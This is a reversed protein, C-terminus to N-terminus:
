KFIYRIIQVIGPNTRKAYIVRQALVPNDTIVNDVGCDVMRQIRQQSNTTWAYVEKGRNHIANVLYETIMSSNISFGDVYEMDYFEGYGVSVVYATRINEDLSKIKKLTGYDFSTVICEEALDYEHILEVVSAELHWNTKDPKIEINLQTNGKAIELVEELTPIYCQSYADSFWSGADLNRVEEYTTMGIDKKIGTTRWLNSDHMVVLVGDSTEQVDLEIYDAGADIAAQFAELTNEPAADSYGRHATVEPINNIKIADLADGNVLDYINYGAWAVSVMFVLSFVTRCKARFKKNECKFDFKKYVPERTIYKARYFLYSVVGLTLPTNVCAILFFIAYRILRFFMLFIAMGTSKKYFLSVGYALIVVCIGIIILIVLTIAVVWFLLQFVISIRNRKQLNFSSKLAKVFSKKEISYYQLVFFWSFLFLELALFILAGLVGLEWHSKLKNVVSDPWPLTVTMAIILTLNLSPMVLGTFPIMGLNGQGRLRRFGELGEICTSFLSIKQHHYSAHFIKILSFAEFMGYLVFFLLMLGLFVWTQFSRLVKYFSENTLYTVGAFEVSWQIGLKVLPAVIAMLLLKSLVEFLLITRINEKILQRYGRIYNNM